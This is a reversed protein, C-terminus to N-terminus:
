ILTLRSSIKRAIYATNYFCNFWYAKPLVSTSGEIIFTGELYECLSQCDSKHLPKGSASEASWFGLDSPAYERSPCARSLGSSTVPYTRHFFVFSRVNPLCASRVGHVFKWILNPYILPHCIGHRLHVLTGHRCSSGM